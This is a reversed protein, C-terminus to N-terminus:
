QRWYLANVSANAQLQRAVDFQLSDVQSTLALRHLGPKHLLMNM